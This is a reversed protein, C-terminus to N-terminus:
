VIIINKLPFLVSWPITKISITRYIAFSLATKQQNVVGVKRARVAVWFGGGIAVQFDGV